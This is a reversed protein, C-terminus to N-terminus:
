LKLLKSLFEGELLVARKGGVTFICHKLNLIHLLMLRQNVTTLNITKILFNAHKM